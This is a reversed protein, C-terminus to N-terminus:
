SIRLSRIYNLPKDCLIQKFKRMKHISKALIWGDQNEQPKNKQLAAANGLSSENASVSKDNYHLISKLLQQASEQWTLWPMNTSQPAEGKANLMLWNNIADSLNKPELGKFYFAHDGAVERFVPIDRAIIPLKHQAAEILPLGFGEGEGAVILCTSAAYVKWLYEDSIGELWFLRKNLESHNRLRNVIEPITRRMDDPLVKWGEKGVIVLNVNVGAQWLQTFAEITQLYGKRPEITGVMLFSPLSTLQALIKGADEPMGLSPASNEVDAGLHFWGIKFTRARTAGNKNHWAILDNAVARSICVAGDLKVIAQMWKMHNVDTGPPFFQPMLVPLIDFVIFHVAVGVNRYFDLLGAAEAEILMHGSNDLGLLLDGCRPEVVEDILVDPPCKLLWMTYRRAYRYHWSGGENTLYVPEVRYGTPPSELLTMILARAVREIGTKLDNRCTASVDLLLQRLPQKVPLTKSITQALTICETESPSHSGIKAINKTLAHCASQSRAHFHEIAEAYQKACAHPAHRTLIVEQAHRGLTNRREKDQWLTELAEVLQANEFADPLMWVADPPLNSISGNANVITPLAHNMCDLVAASTEGRSLTRLQVAIDAAALYNRFTPMDTWGTIRIRKELGSARIARSLKAGYEGGHNEGVFVLLCHPDEALRSHLWSELLRHNLKVPDLLGFSCVVFDETKLGLTTRCHARTLATEPSRLLPIVKWDTSFEKGYWERALKRSYESHVIVGQAHQLVQLNSPYKIKVDTPNSAHYRERVASYGHARYLARAWAHQIIKFEELYALLSSLFFDHLVVTGPIEEILALMHQHFPSNGFQYLVRDMRHANARLWDSDRITCNSSVWSDSVTKQAVVVEIDYYKALEPLLETSYDAIGSREPPLPSVFALKPRNLGASSSHLPSIRRAHLREFVAVARKASEDWSFKKAQELGHAALEARFANNGLVQALKQSISTENYPDFM